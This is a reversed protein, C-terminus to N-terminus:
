HIGVCMSPRGVLALDRFNRLTHRNVDTRTNTSRRLDRIRELAPEPSKRGLTGLAASAECCSEESYTM